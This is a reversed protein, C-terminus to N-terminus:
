NRSVPPPASEAASMSSARSPMCGCNTSPGAVRRAPLKRPARMGRGAKSRALVSATEKMAAFWLSGATTHIPDAVSDIPSKAAVHAFKRMTELLAWERGISTYVDVGALLLALCEDGRQSVEERLRRLGELSDPHPPQCVM